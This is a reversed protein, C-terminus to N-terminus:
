KKMLKSTTGTGELLKLSELIAKELESNSPFINNKM